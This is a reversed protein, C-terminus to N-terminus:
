SAQHLALVWHIEQNKPRPPPSFIPPSPPPLNFTENTPYSNNYKRAALDDSIFHRANPINSFLLFSLHYAKIQRQRKAAEAPDRDTDKAKQPVAASRQTAPSVLRHCASRRPSALPLPLPLHLALRLHLNHLIRLIQSICLIEHFAFAICSSLYGKHM